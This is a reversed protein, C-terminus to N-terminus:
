QQGLALVYGDDTGVFARTGDVHPNTLGRGHSFSWQETGDPTYARVYEAGEDKRGRVVIGRPNGSAIRAHGPVTRTWQRDGTAADVAHVGGTLSALYVTDDVVVPPNRTDGDTAYRWRETGNGRNVGFLWGDYETIYVTGGSAVAGTPVFPEDVPVSFRWHESGDAADVAVVPYNGQQNEQQAELYMDDGFVRPEDTGPRMNRHWRESGDSGAVATTRRGGEVVYLTDGHHTASTTDGAEVAWRKSGDNTQVAFLTEGEIGYADDSTGLYATDDTVVLLNLFNDRSATTWTETGDDIRVLRQATGHTGRSWGVVVFVGDRAVPTSAVGAAAEYRWQESGDAATLAYVNESAKPRVSDRDSTARDNTGGGVYVM